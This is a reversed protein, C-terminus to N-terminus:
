PNCFKCNRPDASILDKAHIINEEYDCKVCGFIESRKEQTKFGCSSCNAGEGWRIKGWGPINCKPCNTGLRDALKEALEGIIKMRSPNMHARMDTEVSVISDGSYKQLEFFAERLAAETHLGKFIPKKQERNNPRLILAHSPFKVSQAFMQLRDWSDVSESRYNTKTTLSSLHLHFEHRNDIFYLIEQNCPIFPIFPHPGFSGESALIFEVKKDYEKIPWECKRRVCELANGERNIEDSFTGLKDTDVVNEIIIAELRDLFPPAIAISKSHKTTLVITSASYCSTHKVVNEEM